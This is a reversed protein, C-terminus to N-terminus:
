SWVEGNLASSRYGETRGLLYLVLVKECVMLVSDLQIMWVDLYLLFMDSLAVPYEVWSFFSRGYKKQTISRPILDRISLFSQWELLLFQVKSLFQIRFTHEKIKRLEQFTKNPNETAVQNHEKFAM